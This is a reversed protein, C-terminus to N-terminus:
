SVVFQLAVAVTNFILLRYETLVCLFVAKGIRLEIHVVAIRSCVEVTGVECSQHVVYVVALNPRDDDFIHATQSPVIEFYSEIRFDSEGFRANPENGNVVAHATLAAHIVVKRGKAINDVLPICLVRALLDAGHEFGLSHRAFM